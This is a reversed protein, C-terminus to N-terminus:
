EFIQWESIPCVMVGNSLFTLTVSECNPPTFSIGFIPELHEESDLTENPFASEYVHYKWQNIVAIDKVEEILRPLSAADKIKGSYYICLGM